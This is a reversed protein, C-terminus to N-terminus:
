RYMDLQLLVALGASLQVGLFGIAQTPTLDGRALPRNKTREVTM